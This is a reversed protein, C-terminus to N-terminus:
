QVIINYLRDNNWNSNSSIGRFLIEVDIVMFPATNGTNAMYMTAASSCTLLFSIDSNEVLFNLYYVYKEEAIHWKFQSRVPNVKNWAM